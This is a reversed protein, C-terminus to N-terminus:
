AYPLSRAGALGHSSRLARAKWTQWPPGFALIFAHDVNHAISYCTSSPPIIITIITINSIFIITIIIIIIINIM